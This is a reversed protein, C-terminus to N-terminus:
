FIHWQKGFPLRPCSVKKKVTRTLLVSNMINGTQRIGSSSRGTILYRICMSPGPVKLLLRQLKKEAEGAGGAAPAM